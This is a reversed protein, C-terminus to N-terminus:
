QGGANIKNEIEREVSPMQTEPVMIAFGSAKDRVMRYSGSYNKVASIVSDYSERISRPDLGSAMGAVSGAASTAGTAMSGAGVSFDKLKEVIETTAMNEVSQALVTAQAKEIWPQATDAAGGDLKQLEDIAGQINGEDLMAQARAVRAQTDTGTILEGDKKVQLIENLRAKAKEQVSVDEGKLSSVVIDGALGKFEGSLRGPTLIGDEAQPALKNIADNLAPNNEGGVMSQLLALDDAFGGDRHVASRFQTLGILLAAAKLDNGSLGDLVEGLAGEQKQAQELADGLNPDNVAAEGSQLGLASLVSSMDGVSNSLVTRGIESNQMVELKEFWTSLDMASPDINMGVGGAVSVAGSALESVKEELMTLRNAINGTGPTTLTRSMEEAQRSITAVRNQIHSAQTQLETIQNKLSEPIMNAFMSEGGGSNRMQTEVYSIRAQNEEIKKNQPFLLAIVGVSALLILLSSVWMSKRVVTTEAARVERAIKNNIEAEFEQEVAAKHGVGVNRPKVNSVNTMEVTGSVDNMAKEFSGSESGAETVGHTNENAIESTAVHEQGEALGTLDIRYKQAAALVDERRAEPIVDRKKWGQITTVAVDIKKSMPRIGGFREIIEGANELAGDNNKKMASM